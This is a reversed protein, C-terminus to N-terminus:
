KQHAAEQSLPSAPPRAAELAWTDAISECVPRLAEFVPGPGICTLVWGSNADDTALWQVSKWAAGLPGKKVSSAVIRTVRRGAKEVDLKEDEVVITKEARLRAASTTAFSGADSTRRERTLSVGTRIGDPAEAAAVIPPMAGKDAAWQEPISLAFGAGSLAVFGPPLPKPLPPEAHGTLAVSLDLGADVGSMPRLRPHSGPPPAVFIAVFPESVGHEFRVARPLWPAELMPYVRGDHDVLAPDVTETTHVDGSWTLSFSIRLHTPHPRPANPANTTARKAIEDVRQVDLYFRNAAGGDPPLGKPPPLDDEAVRSGVASPAGRPASDNKARACAPAFAFALAIGALGCAGRVRSRSTTDFLDGVHGMLRLCDANRALRASM